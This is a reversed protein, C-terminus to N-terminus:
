HAAIILEEGYRGGCMCQATLSLAAVVAIPHPQPTRLPPTRQREMALQPDEDFWAFQKMSLHCFHRSWGRQSEGHLLAWEARGDSMVPKKRLYGTLATYRVSENFPAASGDPFLVCYENWVVEQFVPTQRTPEFKGSQERRAAVRQAHHMRPVPMSPTRELQLDRSSRRQRASLSGVERGLCLEFSSAHMPFFAGVRDGPQLEINDVSLLRDGIHVGGHREAACGPHLKTVYFEPDFVLGIGSENRSLSITFTNNKRSLSETEPTTRMAEKHEDSLLPSGFQAAINLEEAERRRSSRLWSTLAPAM